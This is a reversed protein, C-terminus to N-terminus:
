QPPPSAPEPTASPDDKFEEELELSQDEVNGDKVQYERRQLWANRV